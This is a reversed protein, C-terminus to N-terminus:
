GSLLGHQRSLAFLGRATVAEDHLQVRRGLRELAHQYLPALAASAVLQVEDSPPLAALEHGILLGSLFSALQEPALQGFLGRTRVSFLQQLWHSDETARRLGQEFAAPDHAGPQMLRGLLSHQCLLQFLEGTMLTAFAVIRGDEVRVHKCHTGAMCIVQPGSPLAALMGCVQTEEGRMVDQEGDDRRVSQGPVLWVHRGPLAQPLKLMAAALEELGAPAAVYPVEQWGQRSGIMGAMVVLPEDWGQLLEALTEAFRGDCAIIGQGSRRIELVEGADDLRFARLSSSGWDVAIM